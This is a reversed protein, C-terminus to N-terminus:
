ENIPWTHATRTGYKHGNALQSNHKAALTEKKKAALDKLYNPWDDGFKAQMHKITVLNVFIHWRTLIKGGEGGM